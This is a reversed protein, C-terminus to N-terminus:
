WEVRSDGRGEYGGEEEGGGFFNLVVNGSVKDIM